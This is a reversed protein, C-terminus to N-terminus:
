LGREDAVSRYPFLELEGTGNIRVEHGDEDVLTLYLTTWKAKCHGYAELHRVIDYLGQRLEAPSLLGGHEGRLKIKSGGGDGGTKRSKRTRTTKPKSPFRSM